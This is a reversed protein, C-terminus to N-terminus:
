QTKGLKKRPVSQVTHKRSVFSFRALPATTKKTERNRGFVLGDTQHATKKNKKQKKKINGSSDGLHASSNGEPVGGWRERWVGEGRLFSASKSAIPIYFFLGLLLSLSLSLSLSYAYM